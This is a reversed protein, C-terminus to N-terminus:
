NRFRLWAERLRELHSKIYSESLRDRNLFSRYLSTSPQPTGALGYGPLYNLEGRPSNVNNNKLTTEQAYSWEESGRLQLKALPNMDRRPTLPFSLQIGVAQWYKNDVGKTDKYYFSVSTDEWFRKLEIKGGVDESWFKGGTAELSVNLPSYYFRYSGLLLDYRQNTTDDERWGQVVRFQHDGGGPSWIAENLMGYQDHTVMGAGLNLMVTPLPKVAQVLMLRDLRAPKRSDRFAEGDDLNNSWSLPIDWRANIAAGKWLQTTVEPKLSLLYDFVGVETGIFTVLGPALVLSTTFMGSNSKGSVFSVNNDNSKNFDVTLHDKLVQHGDSQELFTRLYTLPATVSLMRINRKKIVMRLTSFDEAVAACSLGAVVGLADLENHNFITNEYEVVVTKEQSGIQVNLFGERILSERLASLNTTRPEPATTRPELNATQPEPAVVHELNESQAANRTDKIEKKVRFDLPMSMGVAIDFNGPKYDLSTKASATFSIPVQRFQPIVMRVGVNTERTDYEGLLYVWDHAKFEGGAFLGDMRDPGSGYGASLRLRWIDESVVAYKTKLFVAGGGVDQMGFAFVPMLPNHKSLPASTIKFHASLDRGVRPAEFLRGGLELFNFMGVSVMYNDQYTAKKRWKSEEQNTYLAFLWGEDTVHASPTNLIGTFGQLSLGNHFPLPPPSAEIPVSLAFFSVACLILLLCKTRMRMVLM